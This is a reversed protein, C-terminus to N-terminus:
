NLALNVCAVLKNFETSSKHVQIALPQQTKLEDLPVDLITDSKIGAQFNLPYKIGGLSECTGSHIYAMQSGGTNPTSLDLSIRTKENLGQVIAQGSVQSDGYSGVELTTEQTAASNNDTDLQDSDNDRTILFIVLIILILSVVTILAKKM